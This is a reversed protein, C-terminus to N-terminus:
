RSAPRSNGIDADSALGICAMAATEPRFQRRLAPETHHSFDV